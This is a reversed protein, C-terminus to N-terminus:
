THRQKVETSQAYSWNKQFVNEHTDTNERL